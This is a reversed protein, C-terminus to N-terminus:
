TIPFRGSDGCKHLAFFVITNKSLDGIEFKLYHVRAVQWLTSASARLATATQLGTELVSRFHCLMAEPTKRARQM